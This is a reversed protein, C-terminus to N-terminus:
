INKILKPSQPLAPIKYLAVSGQVGQVVEGGRMNFPFPPVQPTYLTKYIRLFNTNKKDAYNQHFCFKNVM